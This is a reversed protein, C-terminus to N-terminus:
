FHLKQLKKQKKFKISAIKVSKEKDHPRMQEDSSHKTPENLVSSRSIVRRTPEHPM